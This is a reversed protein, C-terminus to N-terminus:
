KKILRGGRRQYTPEPGGSAQSVIQLLADAVQLALQCDQTQVAQAALQLLQELPDAQQAAAPDTPPPVEGGEQFKPLKSYIRM